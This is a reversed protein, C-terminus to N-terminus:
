ENTFVIMFYKDVGHIALGLGNICVIMKHNNEIWNKLDYSEVVILSQTKNIQYNQNPIFGSSEYSATKGITRPDDCGSLFLTMCIFLSAMFYKM